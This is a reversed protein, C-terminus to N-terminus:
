LSNNKLRKYNGGCSEEFIAISDYYNLGAMGTGHPSIRTETIIFGNELELFGVSDFDDFMLFDVIPQNKLYKVKNVKFETKYPRYEEPIVEPIGLANKIRGFFSSARKKKAALIEGVSKGEPNVYYVPMDNLDEFLSEAAERLPKEINLSDFGWPIGIIKDNDLQVFVEAEDLGGVEMKSWVLIDTITRGILEKTNM